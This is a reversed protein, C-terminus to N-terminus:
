VPNIYNSVSAIYKNMCYKIKLNKKLLLSHINEKESLLALFIFCNPCAAPNFIDLISTMLISANVDTLEDPSPKRSSQILKTIYGDFWM